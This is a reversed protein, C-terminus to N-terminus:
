KDGEAGGQEKTEFVLLYPVCPNNGVDRFSNHKETNLWMVYTRGGELKVPIVCTRKDDLYHIKGNSEPFTEDSVQCVSWMNKTMMDKSFTVRIEKTSPDVETDGARPVTEVVSPPMTEVSTEAAKAVGTTGAICAAALVFITMRRM